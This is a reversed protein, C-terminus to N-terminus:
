EEEASNKMTMLLTYAGKTVMNKNTLDQNLIEIYGDQQNGTKVEHMMFKQRGTQVFVYEKGEFNVISELPLTQSSATTVKVEANMYMGPLLTKDYNLFHCHVESFGQENIDRSIQHIECNYKKDPAINTFAVLMQRQYLKSIDKEYVELNLHIDSPDILEFLVDAPNVYKGINVNVKSVSGNIPSYLRVSRTINGESLNNPNINILKLKEALANMMIRQNDVEAQAQQTVKDSSAQSQNLDKQRSYELGAFHLKSKALLYDQQLQIYQPDELVALVQGKRLLMGPLLGTTKIYGGLPASVSIMNQPPVDVKGNLRLLVSIKRAVLPATQITANELQADTLQVVNQQAPVVAKEPAKQKATCSALGILLSIIITSYKM